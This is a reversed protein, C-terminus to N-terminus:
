RPFDDAITEPLRGRNERTVTVIAVDPRNRIAQIFPGGGRLPITALFPAGGDLIERVRSRFAESFCEMKGIEDIILIKGGTGALSPLAVAEFDRVDVVYPGVRPGPGARRSALRGKKGDIAEVRFGTRAGTEDRIEETFFGGARDGLLGAVKRAVTTKGCGPPGTLLVRDAIKRM